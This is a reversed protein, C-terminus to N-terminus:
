LKYLYYGVFVNKRPRDDFSYITKEDIMEETTWNTDGEFTNTYVTKKRLEFINNYWPIIM